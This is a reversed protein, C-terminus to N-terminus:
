LIPLDSVRKKPRPWFQFVLLGTATLVLGESLVTVWAAGVYGYRPITMFNAIINIVMAGGYVLPLLYSKGLAILTWMTLSSVFFFPIGLSLIRLAQVSGIFDPRVRLLLPAAIWLGISVVFSSSVLAWFSKKVLAGVEDGTQEGLSNKAARAKLMLPYIANMFFTPVVLPVEFIKYAFGYLGVDQTTRTLTLIFSDARFYVQNLILTVGLPIGSTVLSRLLTKDFSLSFGSFRKALLLSVVATTATGVLLAVSAMIPGLHSSVGVAVIWTLLLTVLSGVVVAATALDYRLREQFLANANTIVAQFLIAPAFVIIGLRVSATYGQGIGQPLFSLIALAVFMLVFSSVLRMTALVRWLAQKQEQNSVSHIRELYVANLGFDALLFFLAIYTTIKTYDGYGDLGFARALLISALLTAGSSIFKGVLQSITNKAVLVRTSDPALFPHTM